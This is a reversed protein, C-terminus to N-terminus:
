PPGGSAPMQTFTDVLQLSAIWRFDAVNRTALVHGHVLSTAAVLADGLSMKRLQRLAVARELVPTSIAIVPAAAFFAEFARQEEAALRHYGLVEVYTIASVFPAQTAIFDRLWQHEPRAAYIVINSDFIM